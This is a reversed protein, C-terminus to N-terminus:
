FSMKATFQITRAPLVTRTSTGFAPAELLRVPIGFQAHNAANFAEGRIVIHSEGYARFERSLALDANFFGISRYSNRGIQTQNLLAANAPYAWEGLPATIALQTRRDGVAPHSKLGTNSVPRDSFNGDENIDITSNITYPQGSQRIFIGSLKWGATWTNRQATSPSWVFYGSTRLTLDFASNGRENPRESNAPLSYEGVTDFYDSADDIAHSYTFSLGGQFGKSLSRKVELQLSDYSSSSNNVFEEPTVEPEFSSIDLFPFFSGQVAQTVSIRRGSGGLPTLTRLLHRGFSGVYAVNISTMRNLSRYVAVNVQVSYPERLHTPNVPALKLLHSALAYIPSTSPVLLNLTGPQLALPPAGFPSYLSTPNAPNSLVGPGSGEAANVPLYSYFASRTEDVIVAPFSSEYMGAALRVVSTGRSNMSWALGARPLLARVGSGFVQQFSGGYSSQLGTAYGACASSFPAVFQTQCQTVAATVDNAFQAPNFAANLRSDANPLSDIQLRVGGNLTLRGSWRFYDQAFLSIQDQGLQLTNEPQLGLTQYTGYPVGVATMDASSEVLRGSSPYGLAGGFEAIPRANRDEYSNLTITRSDIGFYLIHRSHTLEYLDAFQLTQDNRTQPFNYVDVGVPSYGLIHIQGIPGTVSESDAVPGFATSSYGYSGVAPQTANYLLPANLLYPAELGATIADSQQYAGSSIPSFAVRTGGSSFRFVNIQSASLQSKFYIALNWTRLHNRISSDIADGVSPLDSGEDSSNFRATVMHSIGAFFLNQDMRASYITGGADIPLSATYTNSGYAGLPNNPFPELSFVGDGSVTTPKAGIGVGTDGNNAYGRERVTPVSFSRQEHGTHLEREFSLLLYTQRKSVPMGLTFGYSARSQATPELLPNAQYGTGGIVQVPGRYASALNFMVSQGTLSGDGTIPVLARSASPYTSDKLEFYDRARLASPSAIGYATFHFQAGGEASLVNIDAGLARGHRADSNATAVRYSSISEINQPFPTVFGQRRVGFEEDNYDSGDITFNNERSRAGNLSFAGPVGIGPSLSPGSHGYSEPAPAYGPVLTLAVDPNHPLLLPLESFTTEASNLLRSTELTASSDSDVDVRLSVAQKALLIQLPQKSLMGASSIARGEATYFTVSGSSQIAFLTQESYGPARVIVMFNSGDRRALTAHANNQRVLAKRNNESPCYSVVMVDASMLLDGTTDDLIELDPNSSRLSARENRSTPCDNEKVASLAPPSPLQFAVLEVTARADIAHVPRRGPLNNAASLKNVSPRKTMEVPGDLPKVDDATTNFPKKIPFSGSLCVRTASSSDCGFVYGTTTGRWVPFSFAGIVIDKDVQNPDQSRSLQTDEPVMYTKSLAQPRGDVLVDFTIALPMHGPRPKFDNQNIRKYVIDGTVNSTGTQAVTSMAAGSVAGFLCLRIAWAVRNRIKLKSM